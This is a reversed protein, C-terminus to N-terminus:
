STNVQSATRFNNFTSTRIGVCHNKQHIKLYKQKVLNGCNPCDMKSDKAAKDQQLPCHHSSLYKVVKGCLGCKDVDVFYHYKEKHAQLNIFRVGCIECREKFKALNHAKKMHLDCLQKKAYTRPCKPCTFTKKVCSRIHEVYLSVDIESQCTKCSTKNSSFSIEEEDLVISDKEDLSCELKVQVLNAMDEGIKQLYSEEDDDIDGDGQHGLSEEEMGLPDEEM